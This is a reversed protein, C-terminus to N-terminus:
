SLATAVSGIRGQDFRRLALNAELVAHSMRRPAACDGVAVLAPVKGDLSHVLGDEVGLRTKVVVLDASTEAPEGTISDALTVTTGAVGVVETFPRFRVGAARLRRHVHAISEHPIALGVARAPTVLEVAAGREALFEASSVGHWFGVADDAVLAREPVDGDRDSLLEWVSSVRAGDEFPFDPRQPSAGTAAVVLEPEDALVDEATAETGLRVEVGLRDLERELYAVFDLLEGRTPGAAAARVQGGLADSREYLVVTHGAEAAVRAAELGGPGGGAVVVRRATRAPHADGWALERGARANVACAVIGHAARCDQVIGVCPRIQEARGERAKNVWEPDAIVGRGIAVFDAQGNALAQEALEPFRIRSAVVVPVDVDRKVAAALPLTFGEPYSTDKVYAGRMGVTISVYDVPAVAQLAGVIERTDDITLGDPTEEDASLRMGLPYDGGCRERIEEVLERLFRTRGEITDGRYADRRQNSAPSLFQAALYGHGAHIEVGDYGGAKFNRASTGFADVIMRIDAVSMEHPIGPDRPSAIPSPALPITETLGGPSERGLHVLQGFIRAGHRQVAEVRRRVSEVVAEDYAELIVRFPFLSTPHVAAAGTIILGAGGRAREEQFAVERETVRGDLILGTGMPPQVVRNKISVGGITGPAFLHPYSSM